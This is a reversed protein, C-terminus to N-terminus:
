SHIFQTATVFSLTEFKFFLFALGPALTIIVLELPALSRELEDGITRKGVRVLIEHSFCLIVVCPKPRTRIM